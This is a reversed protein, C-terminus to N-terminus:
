GLPSSHFRPKPGNCTGSHKAIKVLKLIFYNDKYKKFFLYCRIGQWLQPM